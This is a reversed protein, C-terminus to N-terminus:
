VMCVTRQTTQSGLTTASKQISELNTTASNLEPLAFKQKIVSSFTNLHPKVLRLAHCRVLCTSCDPLQCIERVLLRAVQSRM